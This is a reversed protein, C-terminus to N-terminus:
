CIQHGTQTYGSPAILVPPDNSPGEPQHDDVQAQVPDQASSNDIQSTPEETPPISPDEPQHDEEMEM